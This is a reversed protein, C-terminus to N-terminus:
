WDKEGDEGRIAEGAALVLFRFCLVVVSAVDVVLFGLIMYPKGVRSPSNPQCADSSSICGDNPNMPCQHPPTSIFLYQTRDLACQM